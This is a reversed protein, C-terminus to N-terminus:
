NTPFVLTYVINNDELIQKKLENTYKLAVPDANIAKPHLSSILLGELNRVRSLAVYAQGACFVSPGLDCIAYDLTLGQSRHITYAYGLVLPLQTRVALADKDEIKWSFLTVRHVGGSMFLVDAHDPGLNTVVGRSGNALGADVDLNAKLLVQAGVKLQITNPITDDLLNTYYDQKANKDYPKFMDAARFVITPTTLKNLEVNNYADVDVKKSFLITPKITLAGKDDTQKIRSQFDDYAKVRSQLIGIDEATPKGDRIRLLMEFYKVDKYRKPKEFIVAKFDRSLQKWAEAQFVWADNVPPLQLFDGSLVLQIGGWPEESRRIKKGIYDLKDFLNAGMMSIEDIFLVQTNLWKEKAKKANNVKSYLKEASEDGLGIGSWRHLTCASVGREAWALNVAAIGTTATCYHRIRLKNLMISVHRICHSKGTGGPAALIISKGDLIHDIIPWYEDPFDPFDVDELAIKRYEEDFYPEM